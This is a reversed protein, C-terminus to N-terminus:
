DMYECVKIELRRQSISDQLAAKQAGLVTVAEQQGAEAAQKKQLELALLDAAVLKNEREQLKVDAHYNMETLFAHFVPSAVACPSGQIAAVLKHQREQLNSHTPPVQILTNLEVACACALCKLMDFRGRGLLTMNRVLM